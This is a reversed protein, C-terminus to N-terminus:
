EGALTARLLQSKLVFSGHVAVSEGGSLGNRIEVLDELPRGAQVARVEFRDQATQVFVVTEGNVEQLAEQPVFLGAAQGGIEIEANAYMEPKLKGARNDLAVRVQVTRTAPDLEEGIWSIRGRFPQNPFAQVFVTAPLGNRLRSLYEENVSLIAWVTSLDSLTFMKASADVVTGPTVSREIVIGDAPARVPVLGTEEEPADPSRDHPDEAPVGLFDELHQTTRVLDIEAMQLSTQVNRLEAEASEVQQQSGAKLEFLRRARDRQRAAYEGQARLRTVEGKAKRYEARSEHIDHSHIRALVNGKKVVDGVKAYVYIVRGATVSGLHWTNNENMALRATTSLRESVPRSVVKMVTIDAMKRGAPTLVVERPNSAAGPEAAPKAAEAVPPSSKDGSCGPMAALLAMMPMTTLAVTLKM